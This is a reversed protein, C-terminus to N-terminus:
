VLDDLKIIGVFVGYHRDKTLVDQHFRLLFSRQGIAFIELCKLGAFSDCLIAQVSRQGFMIENGQDSRGVPGCPHGIVGVAIRKMDATRREGCNRAIRTNRYRCPEHGCNQRGGGINLAM